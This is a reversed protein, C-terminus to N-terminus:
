RNRAAAVLDALKRDPVDCGQDYRRFYDMDRLNEASPTGADGRNLKTRRFFEESQIIYHNLQFRHTDSITRGSDAGWVRHGRLAGPKLLFRPRCIYKNEYHSGLGARRLTFGERVSKPQQILGASGFIVWNSYIVDYRDFEVLADALSDGAPCFWFEDLDAILLWECDDAIGFHGIASRYHEIQQHKAHYEVLQVKGKEVWARAKALTDDTSGNDILYIKGAGMWLYHEIWEDINIGENKMIGLVGLKNPYQPGVTAKTQTVQTKAWLRVKSAIKKLM